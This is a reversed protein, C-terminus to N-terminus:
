EIKMRMIPWDSEKSKIDPIRIEESISKQEM